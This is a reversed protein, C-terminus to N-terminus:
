ESMFHKNGTKAGYNTKKQVGFLGMKGLRYEALEEDVEINDETPRKRKSGRGSSGFENKGTLDGSSVQVPKCCYAM